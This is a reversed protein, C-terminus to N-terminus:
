ADRGVMEQVVDLLSRGTAGGVQFAASCGAALAAQVDRESDGFGISRGLDLGHEEAARLFLGPKPKRCSCGADPAHPCHYFPGLEAGANAQLLLERTRANVQEVATETFLGRGVGSQNSIVVLVYGARRLQVVAPVVGAILRVREPDGLFHLDEILTGDRDLFAAPSARM